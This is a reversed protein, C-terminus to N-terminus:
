AAAITHVATQRAMGAGRKAAYMKSDAQGLLCAPDEDGEFAHVGFSARVGITRGNWTVCAANVSDKLADLRRLGDEIPVRTLLVAFEDGGVRAVADTPRVAEYLTRGVARLVEDGAAHGYTDNVLKFGDLDVCAVVGREGYRKSASITRRLVEDFGRRNFLGTLPDTVVLRELEAIRRTQEQMRHELDLAAARTVDIAGRQARRSLSDADVSAHELCDALLSIAALLTGTNPTDLNRLRVLAKHFTM